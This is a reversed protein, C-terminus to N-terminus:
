KCTQMPDLKEPALRYGLSHMIANINELRPNGKESLAKQLGQRTMGAEEAMGSIGKARSIIRLASLLVGINQDKAYEEFTIKLFADIEEPHDRYYDAAADSFKRM